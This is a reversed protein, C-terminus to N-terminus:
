MLAAPSSHSCTAKDLSNSTVYQCTLRNRRASTNNSVKWIDPLNVRWGAVWGSARPGLISWGPVAQWRTPNPWHAAGAPSSLFSHKEGSQTAPSELTSDPQSIKKWLVKQRQKAISGGRGQGLMYVRRRAARDPVQSPLLKRNLGYRAPLKLLGWHSWSM